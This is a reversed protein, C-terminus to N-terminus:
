SCLTFVLARGAQAVTVSAQLARYFNREQRIPSVQISVKARGAQAVDARGAQAVDALSGNMDCHAVRSFGHFDVVFFRLFRLFFLFYRHSDTDKHNIKRPTTCTALSARFRRFLTPCTPFRGWVKESSDNM